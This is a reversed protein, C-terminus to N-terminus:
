TNKEEKFVKIIHEALEVFHEKIRKSIILDMQKMVEVVIEKADQRILEESKLEIAEKVAAKFYLDFEKLSISTPEEINVDIKTDEEVQIPPFLNGETM